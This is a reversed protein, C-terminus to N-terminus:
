GAPAAPEAPEAPAAPETLDLVGVLFDKKFNAWRAIATPGGSGALVAMMAIVVVSVLPHRRNIDSRPDELDQFHALVEDLSVTRTGAMM